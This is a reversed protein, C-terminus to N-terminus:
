VFFVFTVCVCTVGGSRPLKDGFSLCCYVCSVLRQYTFAERMRFVNGCVSVRAVVLSLIFSSTYITGANILTGESYHHTIHLRSCMVSILLAGLQVACPVTNHTHTHTHKHTHTHTHAHTRTHVRAHPQHTELGGGAM